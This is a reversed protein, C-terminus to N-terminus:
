QKRYVTLNPGESGRERDFNAALTLTTSEAVYVFVRTDDVSQLDDASQGGKIDLLTLTKFAGQKELKVKGKARFRSEGDSGKLEFSFQDAKIELNYTVKKGDIEKDAKWKGQLADTDAAFVSSCLTAGLLLGALFKANM